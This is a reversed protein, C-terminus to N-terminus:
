PKRYTKGDDPDIFMAGSPLANYEADSTPASPQRQAQKVAEPTSGDTGGTLRLITDEAGPYKSEFPDQTKGMGQSYKDQLIGFRGHVLQAINRVAARKQAESNSSSLQKLNEELEAQTGGSANAFVARLEHAVANASSDFATTNGNFRDQVTNILGNPLVASGSITSVQNNLHDLHLALQSLATMNQADKGSTFSKRTATRSPLNTASASPDYTYVAQLLAQAMPSRSSSSPAAQDGNAIAKVTARMGEPISQLYADGTLSPDGPATVEDANQGTNGLVLGKIQEPTAGMQRALAIKQELASDGGKQPGMVPAGPQIGQQGMVPAQMAQNQAEPSQDAPAIPQGGMSAAKQMLWAKVQEEPAGMKIADNAQAIFPTMPDSPPQSSAQTAGQASGGQASGYTLPTAGAGPTAWAYGGDATQILQPKPGAGPNQYVPKGTTPDVLAGGAAVNIFGPKQQGSLAAIQARAADMKPAAEAFTAPPEQGFQSLYPRVQQYAAEKAQPDKQSDIYAIAGQIRKIHQTAADQYQAAAQPDAAQAQETAMPDGAIIQPALNQVQQQRSLADQYAAQKQGFVKNQQGIQVGQNFNGVVNPQQIAAAVDYINGM